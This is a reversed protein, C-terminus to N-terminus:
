IKGNCNCGRFHISNNKTDVFFKNWLNIAKQYEKCKISARVAQLRLYWDIFEHPIVCKQAVEKIGHMLNSFIFYKNMAVKLIQYETDCPSTVLVELADTTDAEIYIFYLNNKSPQIFPFPIELRVWRYDPDKIVDLTRNEISYVLTASPSPGGNVWTDQTDLYINGIKVKEIYDKIKVDVILVKNNPTIMIENVTFM